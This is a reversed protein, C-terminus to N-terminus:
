DILQAMYIYMHLLHKSACVWFHIQNSLLIFQPNKHKDDYQKKRCFIIIIDINNTFLHAIFVLWCKLVLVLFFARGFSDLFVYAIILRRQSHGRNFLMSIQNNKMSFHINNQQARESEIISLFFLNMFGYSLRYFSAAPPEM